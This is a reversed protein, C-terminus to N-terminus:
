YSRRRGRADGSGVTRPPPAGLPGLRPAPKLGDLGGGSHRLAGAAGQVAETDFAALVAPRRRRHPHGVAVRAALHLDVEDAHAQDGVRDRAAAPHDLRQDEGRHEGPVHEHPQGVGLGGLRHDAAALGGPREEAVHKRSPAGRGGCRPRWAPRAVSSQGQHGASCSSRRHAAHGPGAAPWLLVGPRPPRCRVARRRIANSNVSLTSSRTRWSFTSSPSLMAHRAPWGPSPASARPAEAIRGCPWRPMVSQANAAGGRRRVAPRARLGAAAGDRLCARCPSCPAM